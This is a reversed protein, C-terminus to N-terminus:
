LLAQLEVTLAPSKYDTIPERCQDADFSV